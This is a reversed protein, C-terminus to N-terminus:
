IDQTEAFACKRVVRMLAMADGGAAHDDIVALAAIMLAALNMLPVHVDDDHDDGTKPATM